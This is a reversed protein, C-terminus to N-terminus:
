IGRVVPLVVCELGPDDEDLLATRFSFRGRRYDLIFRFSGSIWRRFMILDALQQFIGHSNFFSGFCYNGHIEADRPSRVKLLNRVFNMTYIGQLSDKL